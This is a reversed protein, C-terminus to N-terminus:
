SVVQYFDRRPRVSHLILPNSSPAVPYLLGPIVAFGRNTPEIGVPAESWSLGSSRRTREGGAQAGSGTGRKVAERGPARERHSWPARRGSIARSRCRGRRGTPPRPPSPPAGWRT